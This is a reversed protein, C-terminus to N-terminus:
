HQSVCIWVVGSISLVIGFFIIGFTLKGNTPDGVELVAFGCKRPNYYVEIHQGRSYKEAKGRALKQNASDFEILALQSSIYKEGDVDYEYTVEPRTVFIYNSGGAQSFGSKISSKVIIGITKPWSKSERLKKQIVIGFVLLCIGGALCVYPLLAETNVIIKLNGFIAADPL